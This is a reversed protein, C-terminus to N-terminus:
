QPPNHQNKSKTLKGEGKKDCEGWGAMGLGERILVYVSV